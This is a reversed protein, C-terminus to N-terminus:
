VSSDAVRNLSKQLYTAVWVRAAPAIPRQTLAAPKHDM